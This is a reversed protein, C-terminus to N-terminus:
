RTTLIRFWHGTQQFRGEGGPTDRSLSLSNETHYYYNAGNDTWYGLSRLSLDADNSVTGKGLLSSLTEGWTRFTADIGQGAVLLTQHTFGQPLSSVATDIGSSITGDAQMSTSAVMFNTAPSIVFTNASNDFFAWPGEEPLTTFTPDAFVGSFGLHSLGTPYTQINPFSFNNNAASSCPSPSFCRPGTGIPAFPEM